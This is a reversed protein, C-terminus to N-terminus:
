ANREVGLVVREAERVDTRVPWTVPWKRMCVRCEYRGHHPQMPAGHFQHCWLAQMASLLARLTM